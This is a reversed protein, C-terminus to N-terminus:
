DGKVYSEIDKNEELLHRMQVLVEDVWHAFLEFSVIPVLSPFKELFMNYVYRLKMQGTGGGLEKEAM